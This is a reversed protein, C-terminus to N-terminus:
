KEKLNRLKMKSGITTITNFELVKIGFLRLAKYEKQIVDKM